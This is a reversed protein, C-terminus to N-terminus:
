TSSTSVSSMTGSTSFSNTESSGSYILGTLVATRLGIFFSSATSFAAVATRFGTEGFTRIGAFLLPGGGLEAGPTFGVEATASSLVAVSVGIVM